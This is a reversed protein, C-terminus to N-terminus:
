ALIWVPWKVFAHDIGLTHSYFCTRLEPEHWIKGLPDVGELLFFFFLDAPLQNVNKGQRINCRPKINCALENFTCYLDNDGGHM